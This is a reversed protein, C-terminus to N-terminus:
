FSSGPQELFALEEPTSVRGLIANRHPYRGFKEIIVKHQIAYDLNGPQDLVKYLRVSEEQDALSESHEYPLYLFVRMFEPLKQDYGKAVAEKALALAKADSAFAQPSDRYINRSFQDLVLIQVMYDEPAELMDQYEGNMLQTHFDKFRAAIEQDTANSKEFWWARFKGYDQDKPDGYWFGLVDQRITDSMENEEQQPFTLSLLIIASFAVLVGGSSKNIWILINESLKHRMLMIITSLSLWWGCAGLGVGLVLTIPQEKSDDLHDVGMAAFVAIFALITVPNTLTLFFSSVFASVYSQDSTGNNREQIPCSRFIRIGIWILLIGGVLKIWFEQNIIFDSISALGFAAVAAFCVDAVGAGLGTSIGLFYNGVLTRRICLVGIAGVPAAIAFGVIIGKIFLLALEQM